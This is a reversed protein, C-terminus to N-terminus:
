RLARISLRVPHTRQMFAQKLSSEAERIDPRRALLDIPIGISLEQPFEQGALTGREIRGSAQGLLSSLSNETELIEQQLSLLSAEASARSAEAQSVTARDAQGADMLAILAEVYERWSEVTKETVSVQEDLMLLTYYSDAVTAILQTQVAQRYTDSEELAALAGRKANTLKGFFDLEWSASVGAAYSKATRSGKFSSLTGEPDFQLSPLYSLKSSMLTAQAEEVKLYAIRLDTNAQLAQNILKRLKPDTFLEEWSLEALSSTTDADLEQRFLSDTDATMDPQEYKNYIGCGGLTSATLAAILLKKM